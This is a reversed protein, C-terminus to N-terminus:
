GVERPSVHCARRVVGGTTVQECTPCYPSAASVSADRMRGAYPVFLVAHVAEKPVIGDDAIAPPPPPRMPAPPPLTDIFAGILPPPPPPTPCAALATAAIPSLDVRDVCRECLAKGAVLAHSPSLLDGAPLDPSISPTASRRGPTWPMLMPPSPANLLQYPRGTRSLRPQRHTHTHGPCWPHLMSAVHM